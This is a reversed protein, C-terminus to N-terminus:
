ILLSSGCMFHYSFDDTTNNCNQISTITKPHQQQNHSPLNIPVIKNNTVKNHLQQQTWLLHHNTVISVKLAIRNFM